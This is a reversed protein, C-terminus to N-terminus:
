LKRKKEAEEKFKKIALNKQFFDYEVGLMESLNSQPTNENSLLTTYDESSLLITGQSTYKKNESRQLM